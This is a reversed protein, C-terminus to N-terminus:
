ASFNVGKLLAKSKMSRSFFLYLCVFLCFFSSKIGREEKIKKFFLYLDKSKRRHAYKQLAQYIIKQQM